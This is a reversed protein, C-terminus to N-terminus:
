FFDYLLDLEDLTVKIEDDLCAGIPPKSNESSSAALKQFWDSMQRVRKADTTLEKM